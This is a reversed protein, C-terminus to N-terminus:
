DKTEKITRISLDKCKIKIGIKKETGENTTVPIDIETEFDGRTELLIGGKMLYSILMDTLATKM